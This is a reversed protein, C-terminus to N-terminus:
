GGSKEQGSEPGFAAACRRVQLLQGRQLLGTDGRVSEQKWTDDAAQSEEEEKQAPQGGQVATFSVYGTIIYLLLM